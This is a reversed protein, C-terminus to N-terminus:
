PENNYAKPCHLVTFDTAGASDGNMVEYGKKLKIYRQQQAMIRVRGQCSAGRTAAAPQLLPPPQPLLLLMSELWSYSWVSRKFSSHRANTHATMMRRSHLLYNETDEVAGSAILGLDIACVDEAQARAHEVAAATILLRTQNRLGDSEDHLERGDAGEERWGCGGAARNHEHRAHCSARWGPDIM